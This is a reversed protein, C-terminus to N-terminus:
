FGCLPVLKAYCAHMTYSAGAVIHLITGLSYLDCIGELRRYIAWTVM